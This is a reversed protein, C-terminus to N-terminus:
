RTHTLLTSPLAPADVSFVDLHLPRNAASRSAGSEFAGFGVSVALTVAAASVAWGPRLFATVLLDWISERASAPTRSRIERWVRQEFDAPLGPVPQGALRNLSNEVDHKDM